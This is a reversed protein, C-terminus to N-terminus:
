SHSTKLWKLIEETIWKPRNSQGIPKPFGEQKRYKELTTRSINLVRTLQNINLLINESVIQKPSSLTMPENKKM